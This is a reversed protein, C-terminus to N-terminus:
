STVFNGANTVVPPENGCDCCGVVQVQALFIWRMGGQVVDEFDIKIDDGVQVQTKWTTEKKLTEGGFGKNVEVREWVYWM